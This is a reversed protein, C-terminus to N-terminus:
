LDQSKRYFRRDFVHLYVQRLPCIYTFLHVVSTRLCSYYYGLIDEEQFEYWMYCVFWTYIYTYRVELLFLVRKEVTSYGGAGGFRRKNHSPMVFEEGDSDDDEVEVEVPRDRNVDSDLFDYDLDAEKIYTINNDWKSGPSSEWKSDVGEGWIDDSRRRRDREWSARKLSSKLKPTSSGPSTTSATADRNTAAGLGQTTYLNRNANWPRYTSTVNTPSSIVHIEPYGDEEVDSGFILACCYDGIYKSPM